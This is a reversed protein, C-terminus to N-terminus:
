LQYGTEVLCVLPTVGEKLVVLPLKYQKGDYDVNVDVSGLPYLKEGSYTTMVVDTPTVLVDSCYKEVFSKRALSLACGTDLQMETNQGQIQVPVTISSCQSVQNVHMDSCSANLTYLDSETSDTYESNDNLM